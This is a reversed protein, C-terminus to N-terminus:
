PRRAIDEVDQREGAAIAEATEEVALLRRYTARLEEARIAAEAHAASGPTLEDRDREAEQWLALARTVAEDAVTSSSRM